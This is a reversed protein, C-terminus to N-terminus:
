IFAFDPEFVEEILLDTATIKLCHKKEQVWGDPITKV